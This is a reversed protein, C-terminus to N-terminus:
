NTRTPGTVVLDGIGAFIAYADNDALAAKPDLGQSRIRDLSDPTLIAGANDGVGDLGDTDAAIAWIGSAGNLALGLALMYETNPGGQGRGRVTVATEGGSFVICPPQIRHDRRRIQMALAAHDEAVQRAEGEVRDGLILVTYGAAAANSAAADLGQRGTAVINYEDRSFASDGPKATEARGSRLHNLVGDAATIGFKEIVRIADGSTSPDPVTPGSAIISPDDGPVDSIALTVVRAPHCAEALRGGKIASLHKRVVNIEGISAGSLLLNRTIEKKEDLTVSQVPKALLASGGGSILCLALDDPGLGSALNLMRSAAQMGATDPVPHAAEVVEIRETEVGHGYRTVVLGELSTTWNQEVARAMSAAAKGAGVVVTRGRPPDPLAQRVCHEPSGAAVAAEFVRRLFKDQLGVIRIRATM